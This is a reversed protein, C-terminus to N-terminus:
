LINQKVFDVEDVYPFLPPPPTLFMQEGQRPSASKSRVAKQEPLSDLRHYDGVVQLCYHARINNSNTKRSHSVCSNEPKSPIYIHGATQKSGAPCTALTESGCM